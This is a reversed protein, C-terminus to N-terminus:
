NKCIFKCVSGTMYLGSLGASSNKKQMTSWYQLSYFISIDEFSLCTLLQFNTEFQLNRIQNLFARCVGWDRLWSWSIREQLKELLRSSVGVCASSKASSHRFCHFRGGELIIAGQPGGLAVPSCYQWGTLGISSSSLMSLLFAQFYSSCKSLHQVTTCNCKIVTSNPYSPFLWIEFYDVVVKEQNGAGRYVSSKFRLDIFCVLSTWMLIIREIVDCEALLQFVQSM